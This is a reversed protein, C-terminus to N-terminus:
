THSCDQKGIMALLLKWLPPRPKQNVESVCPLTAYIHICEKIDGLVRPGSALEDGSRASNWNSPKWGCGLLATLLASQGM